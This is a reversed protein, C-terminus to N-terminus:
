PATMVVGVLSLLREVARAEYEPLAEHPRFLVLQKLGEMAALLLAVAGDVDHCAIEGAGVARHVLGLFLRETEDLFAAWSARVDSDVISQAVVETTFVRNGADFLCSHVSFAVAARLQELPTSASERVATMDARWRAYYARCAALIVDKKSSYHWYLSGKTVGAAAAIDDMSVRDISHVSFLDLAAVALEEPKALGAAPTM